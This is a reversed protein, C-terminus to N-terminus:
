LTVRHKAMWEILMLYAWLRRNERAPQDLGAGARTLFAPALLSRAEASAFADRARQRLPGALWEELPMEFGMKRRRLIEPPVLDRIAEILVAKGGHGRLKHKWPLAFAYEALPHDLLVPRVELAHAMSMADADRLLTNPLYGNTEIYSMRAAVGLGDRWLRAYLARIPELGVATLADSAIERKEAEDAMSRIAAQRDLPSRATWARDGVLRGPMLAVLGRRVARGALRQVRDWPAADAERRFQPYGMFLEDGGLGSLAVTVGQRAARSVFYTNAGDLSPQDIAWVLADYERAVQAGTVVVETHETGCREAALRAWSREDLEGGRGEFSVSYTKLRRSVQRSMLSVVATSDIGGSLFAGVPVDAIMHLRTAEELLRRLERAAEDLSATRAERRSSAADAIDWYRWLREESSADVMMAHGPPLARVDRLITRPQPVSGLTLYDWVAQPDLRRAVLGSALMGKLESAFLFANGAWSYYLPKIGFRDRALFLTPRGASRKDYIAFAFMGRLRSTAAEGWQAYAQLIVETDSESRFRRGLGELERRLERYNYIEGNFVIALQGDPTSMPQHGGPTLDIITLRNHGLTVPGADDSAMGADDPGRHAMADRMAAVADPAKAGFIGSIGCM